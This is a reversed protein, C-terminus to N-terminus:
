MEPKNDKKYKKAHHKDGKALFKKIKKVYVKM